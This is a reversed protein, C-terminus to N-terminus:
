KGERRELWEELKRRSFRWQGGIKRGPLEGDKVLKYITSQGLRLYASVEQITMVGNVQITNPEEQKPSTSFAPLTAIEDVQKEDMSHGKLFAQTNQLPLKKSNRWYLIALM